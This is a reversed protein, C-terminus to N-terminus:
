KIAGCISCRYGAAVEEDYAPRIVEDYATRIEIWEDWAPKIEDYAPRDTVWKRETVADHFVESYEADHHITQTGDAVQIQKDYYGSLEGNLAHEECHDWIQDTNLGVETFDMGCAKCFTHVEHIYNPREEDWAEKVLIRETYAPVTIVEEFHGEEEHHITESDHHIIRYEADHHVTEAEHHVTQTVATWHHEHGHPVFDEFTDAKLGASGSEEAENATNAENAANNSADNEVTKVSSDTNETATLTKNGTDETIYSTNEANKLAETGNVKNESSEPINECQKLLLLVVFVIIVVVIMIRLIKKNRKGTRM